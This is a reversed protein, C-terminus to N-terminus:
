DRYHGKCSIVRINGESDINYVLRNTDDIRRSYGDMYKLAEPKGIGQMPGNRRIDELLDNIKRVTKRDEVIWSRYQDFADKTFTFEDM